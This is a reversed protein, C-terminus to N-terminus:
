VAKLWQSYTDQEPIYCVPRLSTQVKLKGIMFAAKYWKAVTCGFLGDILKQFYIDDEYIM